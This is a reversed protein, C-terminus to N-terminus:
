LTEEHNVAGTEDVYYIHLAAGDFDLVAFGFLGWRDGDCEREVECAWAIEPQGPPPDPLLRPVGGHGM